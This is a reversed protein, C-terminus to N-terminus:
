RRVMDPLQKAITKSGTRCGGFPLRNEELTFWGSFGSGHELKCNTTADSNAAALSPRGVFFREGSLLQPPHHGAAGVELCAPSGRRSEAVMASPLVRDHHEIPGGPVLGVIGALRALM